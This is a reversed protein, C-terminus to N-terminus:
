CGTTVTASRPFSGNSPNHFYAFCQDKLAYGQMWIVVLEGSTINLDPLLPNNIAVNGQACFDFGTCPTTASSNTKAAHLEMIPYIADTWNAAPFGNQVLVQSEGFSIYQPRQSIKNQIAAQLHTLTTATSLAAKVGNLVAIHTERGLDSYKSLATSSLVGLIAISSTLELFTFGRQRNKQKFRNQKFVSCFM